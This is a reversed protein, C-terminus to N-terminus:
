ASGFGLKKQVESHLSSQTASRGIAGFRSTQSEKMPTKYSHVKSM